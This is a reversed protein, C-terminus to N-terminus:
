TNFQRKRWARQIEGESTRFGLQKQLMYPYRVECKNFSMGALLCKLAVTYVSSVGALVGM